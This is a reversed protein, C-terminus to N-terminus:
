GVLEMFRSAVQEIRYQDPNEIVMSQQYNGSLFELWHDKKIEGFRVSLIPKKLIAYDILKSPTQATGANEFNVLFDMKSMEYMLSNRDLLGKLQIRGKSAGIFSEVFQPTTTYIHFEFRHSDDLSNLFNLFESPDRRGPIFMGGYGFIIKDSPKEGSYLKVDEFRFGQPIVKIKSHFEPYYGKISAQTPVTLYTAKRCFKKEFYKFYFPPKFTDNEQGMYPDGCDAIWNKAIKDSWASAVGWHIPYPVAISILADYGSEDKLAKKVLPILQIMPYEFLLISFRVVIRWFLLVLGSGKVKPVPWTLSGLNKYTIGHDQCFQEVGERPHTIVKVNHGQRVLEKALETARFSRPSNEPYFANSVLLIKKSM